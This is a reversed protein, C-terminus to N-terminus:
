SELLVNQIKSMMKILDFGKSRLINQTEKRKAYRYSVAIKVWDDVPSKLSIVKICETAMIEEPLTDAVLVTMGNAQAELVTLGFGEYLSPFVFLDMAQLYDSVRDTDGPFLVKESLGKTMVLSKIDEETSGSGILLLRSEPIQKQLLEFFRILFAHNKEPVFRGVHGIVFKNELGLGSRMQERKAYDFAFKALDVGNTIIKINDGSYAWDAAGKSCAIKKAVIRNFFPKFLKHFVPYRSNTSHCHTVIKSKGSFWVPLAELFMMASNGHIYVTDFKKESVLRYISKMYQFVHKKPELEYCPVGNAAFEKGFPNAFGFASAISFQFIDKNYRFVDMEIKTLGDNRFPATALLLIRKM